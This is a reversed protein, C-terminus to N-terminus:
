RPANVTVPTPRGCQPGADSSTRGKGNSGAPPLVDIQYERILRLLYTRQIGLLRAAQTRNGQSALITERILKM